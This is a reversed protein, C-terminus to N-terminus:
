AADTSKPKRDPWRSARMAETAATRDAPNPLKAWRARAAKKAREHALVPDVNRKVGATNPM